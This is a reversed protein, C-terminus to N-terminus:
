QFCPLGFQPHRGTSRLRADVLVAYRWITEQAGFNTEGAPRYNARLYDHLVPFDSAFAQDQRRGSGSRADLVVIPVREGRLREIIRRQEGESAWYGPLVFARGGAFARGAHFFVEPGFWSIFVRDGPATCDRLYRVLGRVGTDSTLLHEPPPSTLIDDRVEGLSRLFGPWGAFVGGQELRRVPRGLVSVSCVTITM